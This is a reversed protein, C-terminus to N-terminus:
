IHYAMLGMFVYWPLCWRSDWAWMMMVRLCGLANDWGLFQLELIRRDLESLSSCAASSSEAPPPSPEALSFDGPLDCPLTDVASPDICRPAMPPAPMASGDMSDDVANNDLPLSDVEDSSIIDEYMEDELAPM